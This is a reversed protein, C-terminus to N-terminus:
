GKIGGGEGGRLLARCGKSGCSGDRLAVDRDGLLAPCGVALGVSGGSDRLAVDGGEGLTTPYGVALGVSGGGSGRLAVVGWHPLVGWLVM